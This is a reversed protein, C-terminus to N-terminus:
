KKDSSKKVYLIIGKKKEKGAPTQSGELTDDATAEENVIPLFTIKNLFIHKYFIKGHRCKRM